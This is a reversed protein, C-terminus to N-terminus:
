WSASPWIMSTRPLPSARAPTQPKCGTRRGRAAGQELRARISEIGRELAEPVPHHVLTRAGSLCALLPIGAVMTGAAAAGIV